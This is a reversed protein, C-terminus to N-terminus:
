SKARSRSPAACPNQSRARSFRRSTDRWDRSSRVRSIRRIDFSNRSSNRGDSVIQLGDRQQRLADRVRRFVGEVDRTQLAQRQAEGRRHREESRSRCLSAAPPLQPAKRTGQRPRRVSPDRPPARDPAPYAARHIREARRIGHASRKTVRDARPPDCPSLKRASRSFRHPAPTNRKSSGSDASDGCRCSANRASSYRRTSCPRECNRKGARIDHAEIPRLQRM